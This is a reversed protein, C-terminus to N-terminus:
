ALPVLCGMPGLIESAMAVTSAMSQMMARLEADSGRDVATDRGLELGIHVDSGTTPERAPPDVPPSVAYAHEADCALGHLFLVCARLIGAATRAAQYLGEMTADSATWDGRMHSRADEAADLAAGACKAVSGFLLLTWRRPFEARNVCSLLHLAASTVANFGVLCSQRVIWADNVSLTLACLAETAQRAAHLAGLCSIVHKREPMHSEMGQSAAALRRLALSVAGTVASVARSAQLSTGYVPNACALSVTLQLGVVLHDFSGCQITSSLQFRWRSRRAVLPEQAPAQGEHAEGGSSGSSSSFGETLRSGSTQHRRLLSASKGGLRLRPVHPHGYGASAGDGLSSSDASVVRGRPAVLDSAIPSTIADM